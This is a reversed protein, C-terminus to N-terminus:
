QEVEVNNLFVRALRVYKLFVTLTRGTVRPDPAVGITGNEYEIRASLVRSNNIPVGSLNFLDSRELLVGLVSLGNAYTGYKGNSNALGGAIVGIFSNAAQAYPSSNSTYVLTEYNNQLVDDTSRLPVCATAGTSHGKYAGFAILSHKYSEPISNAVKQETTGSGETSSVIPQQPFYLSGLQWQWRKYAWQESAYSDHDIANIAYTNRTIAFAKLARSAAKRVELQVTRTGDMKEYSAQTPEWDCYVIELGNVASMENLARQVGDTLQVAYMSLYPNIIKYSTISDEFADALDAPLAGTTAIKNTHVFAKEPDTWTFSLRLGSLLMPPLLRGYGFLESLASLPISFFTTSHNHQPSFVVGNYGAAGAVTRQYDSNMKFPNIAYHLLDAQNLRVVEDGSRSSITITDILNLASGNRGFYGVVDNTGVSTQTLQVGFELSSLRMDGYHAGSNLICIARQNNTYDTQQFYHNTHTRNVSVSLDPPLIYNLDNVSMLGAVKGGDPGGASGGGSPAGGGPSPEMFANPNSKRAAAM